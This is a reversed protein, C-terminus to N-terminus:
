GAWSINEFYLKGSPNVEVGQLGKKYARLEVPQYLPAQTCLSNALACAKELIALRQARHTTEQAQDILADLEENRLFTKNTSGISKSHFVATMYGLMTSTTYGGIAGTYNGQTTTALYTALDMSEVQAEIGIEALNEVIVQAARRKTDSSCIISLQINEGDAGAKQLYERALQPDYGQANEQSYGPLNFPAQGIAAQGLGGLAQAIVKERDIATSIARRVWINSLGSAENNLMLWTPGTSLWQTVEMEENQTLRQYDTNEVDMLFDVDGNELAATRAEGEPIIKWVMHSIAPEGLFYDAFAEFELRDGLVWTRFRYPGSGVPNKSFDNGSDILHKPLISNAHFSLDTILTASPWATQIEFTYADVVRVEQVSDTHRKVQPFSKAWELSAKVDQATLTTGDHFRVGERLRFRWLTDSVAQYEEVLHPQPNMEMDLRFLTSYTLLNMYDGAISSHGTPSLSPPESMTAIIISDERAMPEEPEHAQSPPLPEGGGSCGALLSFILGLACFFAGLRKKQKM